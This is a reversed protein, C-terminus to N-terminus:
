LRTTLILHTLVQLVKSCYRTSLFQEMFKLYRSYERILPSRRIHAPDIPNKDGQFKSDLSSNTQTVWLQQILQSTPLCNLAKQLFCSELSFFFYIFVHLPALLDPPDSSSFPSPPLLSSRSFPLCLPLLLLSVPPPRPSLSLSAKTNPNRTETKGMITLKWVTDLYIGM